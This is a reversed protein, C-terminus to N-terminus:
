LDLGDLADWTHDEKPPQKKKKQKKCRCPEENLDAGCGPCLGKCDESCKFRTPVALLIEERIDDTIDVIEDPVKERFICILDSGIRATLEKLCLACQTRVPIYASGTVLLDRRALSAHLEYHVPELIQCPFGGATDLELFAPDETGKVTLGDPGIDATNIRIM